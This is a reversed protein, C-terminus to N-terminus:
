QEKLLLTKLKQKKNYLSILISIFSFIKNSAIRFFSDPSVKDSTTKFNSFVFRNVKFSPFLNNFFSLFSSNILSVKKVKFPSNIALFTSCSNLM